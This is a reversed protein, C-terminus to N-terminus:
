THPAAEQELCDEDGEVRMLFMPFIFFSHFPLLSALVLCAVCMGSGRVQGERPGRHSRLWCKSDRCLAKNLVCAPLVSM